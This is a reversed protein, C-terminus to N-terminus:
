SWRRPGPCVVPRGTAAGAPSTAPYTRVTAVSLTVAGDACTRPQGSSGTWCHRVSVLTGFGARNFIRYLSTIEGKRARHRASAFTGSRCRLSHTLVTRPGRSHASRVLSHESARASGTSSRANRPRLLAVGEFRVALPALRSCRAFRSPLHTARRPPNFPAKEVREGRRRENEISCRVRRCHRSLRM